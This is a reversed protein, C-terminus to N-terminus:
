QKERTLAARLRAITDAQSFGEPVASEAHTSFAKQRAFWRLECTPDALAEALAANLDYSFGDFGAAILANHTGKSTFRGMESLFHYDTGEGPDGGHYLTECAAVSRSHHRRCAAPRVTYVSCRGQVLLPCSGTTNGGQRRAAAALRLDALEPETRSRRLERVLLFVEHARVDIRLWCCFSCGAGCALGANLLRLTGNLAEDLQAQAAATAELVGDASAAGILAATMSQFTVKYAAQWVQKEESSM